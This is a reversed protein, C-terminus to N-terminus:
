LSDITVKARPHVTQGCYMGYLRRCVCAQRMLAVASLVTPQFSNLSTNHENSFHGAITRYTQQDVSLGASIGAGDDNV